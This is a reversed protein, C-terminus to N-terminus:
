GHAAVERCTIHRPDIPTWSDAYQEVIAAKAATCEAMDQFREVDFQAYKGAGFYIIMLVFTEAMM